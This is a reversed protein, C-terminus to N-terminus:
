PGCPIRAYAQFSVKWQGGEQKLLDIWNGRAQEPKGEKDNVTFTYAATTYALGDNLLRAEKVKASYDRFGNKIAAEVRKAYADRGFARPSEPCLSQLVADTTYLDTVAAAVDNRAVATAFRDALAQRIKVLDEDTPRSQQAAAAPLSVLFFFLVITRKMNM